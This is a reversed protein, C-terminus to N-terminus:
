LAVLNEGFAPVGSIQTNQDAFGVLVGLNGNVM